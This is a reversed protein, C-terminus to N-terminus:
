CSARGIKNFESLPWYNRWDPSPTANSIIVGWPKGALFAGINFFHHGEKYKSAVPALTLTAQERIFILTEDLSRSQGRLLERLLDSIHLGEIEALGAYSILATGDRCSVAIHKMSNDDKKVIKGCQIISVRHDSCQWIGWPAVITINLTM